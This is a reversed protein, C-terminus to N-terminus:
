KDSKPFNIYFDQSFTIWKKILEPNNLVNEAERNVENFYSSGRFLLAINAVWMAKWEIISYIRDYKPKVANMIHLSIWLLFGDLAKILTSLRARLPGRERCDMTYIAAHFIKLTLYKIEPSRKRSGGVFHYVRIPLVYLKYGKLHMLKCMDYEECFLFSWEEYFINKKLASRRAVIATGWLWQVPLPESVTQSTESTESPFLKSSIIRLLNPKVLGGIYGTTTPYPQVLGAEPTDDLFQVIQKLSGPPLYADPNLTMVYRGRSIRYAQNTAKAFGYNYDNRILVVWPFRSELGELSDDVSANDVVIVEFSVGEERQNELSELCRRLFDGSNWNVILISLDLESHSSRENM